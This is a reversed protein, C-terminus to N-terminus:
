ICLTRNGQVDNFVLIDEIEDCLTLDADVSRLYSLIRFIIDDVSNLEEIFLIGISQCQLYPLLIACVSRVTTPVDSSLFIRVTQLNSAATVLTYCLSQREVGCVHLVVLVM